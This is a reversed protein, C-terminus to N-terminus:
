KTFYNYALWAMMVSGNFISEENAQFLPSHVGPNEKNPFGVGLRYFCAPVKQSYFSFDEATMRIDLSKINNNIEQAWNSAKNTLEENNKLFPYGKRIDIIATARYDHCIGNIYNTVLTHAKSRWEENMTRFTGELNVHSPIVNTAGNGVIKGITIVSPVDKPTNKHILPRLGSIIHSSIEIPDICKEPMAGHGGKGIIKIHLEDTSAMYKGPRFGFSGAELEPMVHQGIIANVNELVGKKILISAGGPLLEEGAQFIGKINGLEEINLEKLITLAGLLCTTHIDHGCAHMIGEIKSRIPTEAMEHIPLADIDARLALTKLTKNTGLKVITGTEELRSFPIKYKGLFSEIDRTTNVEKFSLEPNEHMKRRFNLLEPLNKRAINQIKEIM